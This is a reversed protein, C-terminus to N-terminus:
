DWLLLLLLLLVDKKQKKLTSILVGYSTQTITILIFSLFKTKAPTEVPNPANVTVVLSSPVSNNQATTVTTVTTTYSEYLNDSRV